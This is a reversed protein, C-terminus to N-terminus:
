PNRVITKYFAGAAPSWRDKVGGPWAYIAAKTPAATITTTFSSGWDMNWYGVLEGTIGGIVPIDGLLLDKKYIRVEDILGNFNRGPLAANAGIYVPSNNVNLKDIVLIPLGDPLGDVYLTILLGNYEGVIHHWQGDNVNRHGVVTYVVNDVTCVFEMANTNGSRQLSWANSGKSIVTAYSNDFSNVKIRASITIKDKLGALSPPDGINIFSSGDFNIAGNTFGAAWGCNGNMVGDNQQSSGDHVIYRMGGDTFVAGTVGLFGSVAPVEIKGGVFVLGGITISAGDKIILDGKVYLAPVNKTATIINAAKSVTLNGDVALCGSIINQSQIEMDKNCYYVQTTGGFTKKDIKNDITATSFNSTLISCNITPEVLQLATKAKVSGSAPNGTLSDTFCDGNLTGSNAMAGNSYVDGTVSMGPHVSVPVGSWFAVDPDIRMNATFSSQATKVSGAKRYASSVIQWNCESLKTVSVDYYDSGTYLQQATAGTFYDMAMDQPYMILGKAHELGSEALYDMDAKLEMNQGCAFETDGRIIFGLSVITIAAVVLLVILLVAGKGRTKKNKYRM